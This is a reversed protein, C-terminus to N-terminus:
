SVNPWIGSQQRSGGTGTVKYFPYNGNKKIWSCTTCFSLLIGKYNLLLERKQWLMSFLRDSELCQDLFIGGNEYESFLDEVGLRISIIERQQILYANIDPYPALMNTTITEIARLYGGAKHIYFDAETKM